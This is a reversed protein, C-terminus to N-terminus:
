NIFQVQVNGYAAFLDKIEREKDEDTTYEGDNIRTLETYLPAYYPAINLWDAEATTPVADSDCNGFYCKNLLLEDPLGCAAAYFGLCCRFGDRRLLRSNALGNGRYWTRRDIILPKVGEIPLLAPNITTALM